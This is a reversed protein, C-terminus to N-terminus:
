RTDHGGEVESLNVVILKKNGSVIVAQNEEQEHVQKAKVGDKVELVVGPTETSHDQLGETVKQDLIEVRREEDTTDEITLKGNEHRSITMIKGKSTGARKITIEDGDETKITTTRIDQDADPASTSNRAAVALTETRRVGEAVTFGDRFTRTSLAGEHRLMLGSVLLLVGLLVLLFFLREPTVDRRLM